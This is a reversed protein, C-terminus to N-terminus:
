FQSFFLVFVGVFACKMYSENKLNLFEIVSLCTRVLNYQALNYQIYITRQMMSQSICDTIKELIIHKIWVLM